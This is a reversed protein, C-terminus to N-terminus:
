VELAAKYIAEDLHTFCFSGRLFYSDPAALRFLPQKSAVFLDRFTLICFPVFLFYVDLNFPIRTNFKGTLRQLLNDTRCKGHFFFFEVILDNKNFVAIGVKCKLVCFLLSYDDTFALPAVFAVLEMYNADALPNAITIFITELFVFAKM